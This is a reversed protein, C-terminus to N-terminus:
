TEDEYGCEKCYLYVNTCSGCPPNIHCSCNESPTYEITGNCGGRMCIDGEEIADQEIKYSYIISM